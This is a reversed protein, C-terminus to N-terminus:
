MCEVYREQAIDKHTHKKKKSPALFLMLTQDHDLFLFLTDSTYFPSRNQSLKSTNNPISIYWPCYKIKMKSTKTHCAWTHLNLSMDTNERSEALARQVPLYVNVAIKPKIVHKKKKQVIQQMYQTVHWERWRASHLWKSWAYQTSKDFLHRTTKMWKNSICYVVREESCSGRSHYILSAFFAFGFEKTQRRQQTLKQRKAVASLTVSLVLLTLPCIEWFIHLPFYALLYLHFVGRWFSFCWCCGVLSVRTHRWPTGHMWFRGLHDARTKAVVRSLSAVLCVNEFHSKLKQVKKQTHTRAFTGAHTTQVSPWWIQELSHTAIPPNVHIVRGGM